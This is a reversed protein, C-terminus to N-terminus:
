PDVSGEMRVFHHAVQPLYARIYEHLTELVGRRHM